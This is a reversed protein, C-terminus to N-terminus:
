STETNKKEWGPLALGHSDHYPVHRRSCRICDPPSSPSDNLMPFSSTQLLVHRCGSTLVFRTQLDQMKLKRCIWNHWSFINVFSSTNIIENWKFLLTLFLYWMLHDLCFLSVLKWPLGTLGIAINCWQKFFVNLIIVTLRVNLMWLVFHVFRSKYRLVIREKQGTCLKM